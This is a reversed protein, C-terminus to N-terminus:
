NSFIDPCEFLLWHNSSASALSIETVTTETSGAPCGTVCRAQAAQVSHNVVDTLDSYRPEITLSVGDVVHSFPPM